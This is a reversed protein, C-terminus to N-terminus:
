DFKLSNTIYDFAVGNLEVSFLVLERNEKLRESAYKIIEGDYRRRSVNIATLVIEKDDKLKNAAYKLAFGSKKVADPFDFLNSGRTGDIM